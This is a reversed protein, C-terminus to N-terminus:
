LVETTFGDSGDPKRYVVYLSTWNPGIRICWCVLKGGAERALKAAEQRLYEPSYFAMGNERIEPVLAAMVGGGSAGRARAAVGVRRSDLVGPTTGSVALLVM